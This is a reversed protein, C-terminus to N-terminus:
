GNRENIGNSEKKNFNKVIDIIAKAITYGEDYSDGLQKVLYDDVRKILEKEDKEKANLDIVTEAFYNYATTTVGPLKFRKNYFKIMGDKEKGDELKDEIDNRFKTAVARTPSTGNLKNFYIEIDAYIKKAFPTWVSPKDSVEKKPNEKKALVNNIKNKIDAM